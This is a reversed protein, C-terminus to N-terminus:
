QRRGFSDRADAVRGVSSFVVHECPRWSQQQSRTERLVRGGKGSRDAVLHDRAIERDDRPGVRQTIRLGIEGRRAIRDEGREENELPRLGRRPQDARAAEPAPRRSRDLHAIPDRTEIPAPTEGGFRASRQDLDGSREAEGAELARVEDVVRSRRPHEFLEAELRAAEDGRAHAARAALFHRCPQHLQPAPRPRPLRPAPPTIAGGQSRLEHPPAFSSRGGCRGCRSRMWQPARVM